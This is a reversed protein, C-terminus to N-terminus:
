QRRPDEYIINSKVKEKGANFKNKIGTNKIESGKILDKVAVHKDAVSVIASEISNPM